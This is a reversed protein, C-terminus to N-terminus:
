VVLTIFFATPMFPLLPHLTQKTALCPVVEFGGLQASTVLLPIAVLVAGRSPAHYVALSYLRDPQKPPFQFQFPQSPSLSVSEFLQISGVTGLPGMHPVRDSGHSSRWTLHPLHQPPPADKNAQQMGGPRMWQWM